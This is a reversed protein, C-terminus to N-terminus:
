KSTPGPAAVVLARMEEWSLVLWVLFPLAVMVVTLIITVQWLYGHFFELYERHDRGIVVLVAIRAINVATVVPVGWAVGLAKRRASAPSALIASILIVASYIGTCEFLCYIL